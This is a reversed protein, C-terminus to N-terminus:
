EVPCLVFMHVFVLNNKYFISEKGSIIPIDKEQDTVKYIYKWDGNTFEFDSDQRIKEGHDLMISKLFTLVEPKSTGLEQLKELAITGGAYVRTFKQGGEEVLEQGGGLTDACWEDHYTGGNGDAFHSTKLVFGGRDAQGFTTGGGYGAQLGTALLRNISMNKKQFM